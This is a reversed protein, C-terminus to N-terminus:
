YTARSFHRTMHSIFFRFAMWSIYILILCFSEKFFFMNKWSSLDLVDSLQALEQVFNIIQYVIFIVM